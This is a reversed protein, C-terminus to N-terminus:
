FPLPDDFDDPQQQYGNAKAKNHNNQEKLEPKGSLMQFEKAIVRTSYHTQGNKEYKETKLKGEVYIQSGKKCFSQALEAVKGFFVVNIWETLEKKEGNKDKYRENVAVSVNAVANGNDMMRVEADKGVTGMAIVKNVGLM